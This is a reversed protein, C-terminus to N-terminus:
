KFFDMISDSHNLADQYGVDILKGAYEGDFLLFSLFDGSQEPSGLFRMLFRLLMTVNQDYDQAYHGLDDAPSIHTTQIYRLHSSIIKGM